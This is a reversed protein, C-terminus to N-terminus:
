GATDEDTVDTVEGDPVDALDDGADENPEPDDSETQEQAPVDALDGTDIADPDGADDPDQVVVPAATEAPTDTDGAVTAPNDLPEPQETMTTGKTYHCLCLCLEDCFKCVRRCRPHLDHQCATSIYVHM